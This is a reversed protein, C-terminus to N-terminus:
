NALKFISLVRQGGQTQVIGGFDSYEREGGLPALQWLFSDLPATLIAAMRQGERDIVEYRASEGATTSLTLPVLKVRSLYVRVGDPATQADRLSTRGREESPVAGAPFSESDLHEERCGILFSSLAVCAAANSIKAFM